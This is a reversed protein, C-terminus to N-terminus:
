ATNGAQLPAIPDEEHSPGSATRRPPGAPPAHLPALAPKAAMVWVTVIWFVVAIGVVFGAAKALRPRGRRAALWALVIGAILFVAGGDATTYGFTVWPLDADGVERIRIWEAGFSAHRRLRPAGGSSPHPLRPPARGPPRRRQAPATAFAARVGTAAAGVLVMAGLVHVFLPLDLDSPRITAFLSM